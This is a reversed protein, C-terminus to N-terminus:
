RQVRGRVALLGLGLLLPGLIRLALHLADGVGTLSGYDPTAGFAVASGICYLLSRPFNLDAEFGWAHLAVASVAVVVALALFSRSARLGYGSVLWYAWILRGESRSSPPEVHRPQHWAHRRMEMEGYYFDAAGPADKSDERGKRLARYIVAIDEAELLDSDDEPLVPWGLFRHRVRWAHKSSSEAGGRRGADL